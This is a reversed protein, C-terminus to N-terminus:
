ATKPLGPPNIESAPVAEDALSWRELTKAYAGSGILHNLADALAEVLGNGKQTTAAIAAQVTGGGPVLGVVKTDGAVAAHYAATPNPGFSAQIRGSRLALYTDSAQQYYQIEVPERGAAVNQADWDLLVKEQNTGSGVSVTLGAIDAPGAIRTIDSDKAVEWALTDVRYSAFDYKEKREETVTINSFGVDYQGSEMSLFLNEWSTTRIEPELGLTAAVLLAIDPEIGIVTEDDDARFSLPPNGNGTTGIVLTGRDRIAQPVKAAIEPVAQVAIRGTQEPSTDVGGRTAAAAPATAPDDAGSGCASLVVPAAALSLIWTRRSIM